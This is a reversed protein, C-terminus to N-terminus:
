SFNDMALGVTKALDPDLLTATATVLSANPHCSSRRMQLDTTAPTQAKASLHCTGALPGLDRSETADSLWLLPPCTRSSREPGGLRPKLPAPLPVSWNRTPETPCSTSQLLEFIHKVPCLGANCGAATQQLSLLQPYPPYSAFVKFHSFKIKRFSVQCLNWCCLLMAHAQFLPQSTKATGGAAERGKGPVAMTRAPAPPHKHHWSNSNPFPCCLEDRFPSIPSKQLLPLDHQYTPALTEHEHLHM